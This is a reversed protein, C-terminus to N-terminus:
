SPDHHAKMYAVIAELEALTGDNKLANARWSIVKVNGKVYGLAPIIRDLSASNEARGGIGVAKLAIGLVPCHTPIIIDEPRLDFLINERLARRRAAQLLYKAPNRGIKRRIYDRNYEPNDKHWQKFAARARERNEPQARYIASRLREQELYRPDSRKRQMYERAQALKRERNKANWRQNQERVREKNRAYYQRRRALRAEVLDM